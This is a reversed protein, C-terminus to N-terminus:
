RTAPETMPGHPKPKTRLTSEIRCKASNPTTIMSNMIPRSSSGLRSQFMRRATNPPPASCITLEPATSPAASSKTSGHFPARTAPRASASDDVAIAMCVM